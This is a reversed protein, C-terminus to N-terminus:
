AKPWVEFSGRYTLSIGSVEHDGAFAAQMAGFGDWGGDWVARLDRGVWLEGGDLRGDVLGEQEGMGSLLGDLECLGGGM